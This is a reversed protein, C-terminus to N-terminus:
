WITSRSRRNASFPSPLPERVRESIVGQGFAVAGQRDRSQNPQESLGVIFRIAETL